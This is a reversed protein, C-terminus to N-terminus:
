RTRRRGIIVALPIGVIALGFTGLEITSADIRQAVTIGIFSLLAIGALVLATRVSAKRQPARTSNAQTM